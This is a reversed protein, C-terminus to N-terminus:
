SAAAPARLRAEVRWGCGGPIPGAAVEGDYVAARERMGRLGGGDARPAGGVGTDAVAVTLAGDEGRLAVTAAAGPGAHKLTNTLAEQVIRYAALQLGQPLSSLEAGGTQLAVPLGAGRVQAVLAEVEGLGPQPARGQGEGDERLVGLLRRMETLAQRGTRASRVMADRARGPAADVQYAAGDALAVMVSLNHAVVDHM